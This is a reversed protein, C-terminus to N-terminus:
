ATFGFEKSADMVAKHFKSVKEFFEAEEAKQLDLDATLGFVTTSFAELQRCIIKILVRHYVTNM